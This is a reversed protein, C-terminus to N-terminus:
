SLFYFIMGSLNSYSLDVIAIATKGIQTPLSGGLRNKSMDLELLNNLLSIGKPIHGTLNYINYM